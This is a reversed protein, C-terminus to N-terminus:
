GVLNPLRRSVELLSIVCVMTPFAVLQLKAGKRYVVWAVSCVISFIGFYMAHTLVPIYKSSDNTALTLYANSFCMLAFAYSAYLWWNGWKTPGLLERRSFMKDQRM